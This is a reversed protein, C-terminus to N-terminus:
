SSHGSKKFARWSARLADSIMGGVAAADCPLGAGGVSLLEESRVIASRWNTLRKEPNTRSEESGLPRNVGEWQRVQGSEACSAMIKLLLYGGGGGRSCTELYRRESGTGVFMVLGFGPWALNGTEQWVPGGM